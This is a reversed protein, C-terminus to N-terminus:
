FGHHLILYLSRYTIFDGVRLFCAGERGGFGFSYNTVADAAATAPTTTADAKVEAETSFMPNYPTYSPTYSPTYATYPTYQTYPTYIDADNKYLNDYDLYRYILRLDEEM